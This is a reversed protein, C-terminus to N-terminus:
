EDPFFFIPKIESDEQTPFIRSRVRMQRSLPSQPTGDIIVYPARAHEGINNKHLWNFCQYLFNHSKPFMQQSLLSLLQVDVSDWFIVTHSCSRVISKGHKSPQFINQTTMIVTINAHHSKQTILDVIDDAAFAKRMLDDIILLKPETDLDLGLEEIRPMDEIIQLQIDTCSDKLKNIFDIRTNFCNPPMCYMIRKFKVNFVIERFKVLNYIFHSKGSQSPGAVCIRAPAIFKIFDDPIKLQQITASTNIEPVRLNSTFDVLTVQPSNHVPKSHAM